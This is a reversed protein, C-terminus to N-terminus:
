KTLLGSLHEICNKINTEYDNIWTSEINKQHTIMKEKLITNHNHICVFLDKIASLYSIQQQENLDTIDAIKTFYFNLESALSRIIYSDTQLLKNFDSVSELLQKETSSEVEFTFMPMTGYKLWMENVDYTQCILRILMESPVTGNKEIKSIHANTVGLSNAFQVQSLNFHLRLEKLRTNITDM